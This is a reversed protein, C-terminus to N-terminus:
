KSLQKEVVAAYAALIERKVQDIQFCAPLVAGEKLQFYLSSDGAVDELHKSLTQIDQPEFLLGNKHSHILDQHGKVDSVICPLGCYLAEMVNFPLGEYYSAAVLADATRYLCNVDSVYGCFLIKGEMGLEKVLKRCFDLLDGDGALLLQINSTRERAKAFARIITEQNKRKSFEGITLFTFCDSGLGYKRRVAAQVEKTLAPFNEPHIGMGHVPVIQRGLHYKRAIELDQRNMTLLLDVPKATLRECALYIRSKMGGHEDFLYGHCIQIVAPRIKKPLLLIAGRGILGALTANPQFIDYGEQKIIKRLQFITCINALPFSSKSFRLEFFRDVEPLHLKGQAAVHVEWGLSRFYAIYDRHFNELHSARSACFLIKKM